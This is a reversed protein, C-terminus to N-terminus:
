RGSERAMAETAIDVLQRRIPSDNVRARHPRDRCRRDGGTKCHTCSEEALLRPPIWGSWRTPNSLRLPPEKLRDTLDKHALVRARRAESERKSAAAAERWLRMVPRVATEPEPEDDQQDTTPETSVTAVERVPSRRAGGLLLV